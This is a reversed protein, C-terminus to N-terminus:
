TLDLTDLETALHDMHDATRVGSELCAAPSEQCGIHQWLRTEQLAKDSAKIAPLMADRQDATLDDTLAPYLTRDFSLSATSAVFSAELLHVGCIQDWSEAEACGSDIWNEQWDQVETLQAAVMEDATQPEAANASACGALTLILLPLAALRRM